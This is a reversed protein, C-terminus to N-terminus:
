HRSTLEARGPSHYVACHRALGMLLHKEFVMFSADLSGSSHEFGEFRASIAWALRSEEMQLLLLKRLKAARAARVSLVSPVVRSLESSHAVACDRRLDRGGLGCTRCCAAGLLLHCFWYWSRARAGAGAGAGACRARM